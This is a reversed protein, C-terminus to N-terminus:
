ARRLHLHQLIPRRRDELPAYLPVAPYPLSARARTRIRLRPTAAVPTAAAAQLNREHTREVPPQVPAMGGRASRMPSPLACSDDSSVFGPLRLWAM